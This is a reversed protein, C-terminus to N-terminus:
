GGCIGVIDGCGSITMENLSWTGSNFRLIGLVGSLGFLYILDRRVYYAGLWSVSTGPTVLTNWTPTTAMGNFTQFVGVKGGAVTKDRGVLVVANIDDDAISVARQAATFTVGYKTGSIDPSVDTRTTGVVRILRCQNVLSVLETSGFWVAADPNSVPRVICRANYRDITWGSPAYSSFTAGSDTSRYFASGPPSGTSTHCSTLIVGSGRPDVFVGPAWNPTNNLYNTDYFSTLGTSATWTAGADASYHAQVGGTDYYRMVIVNFPNGRESQLQVQGVNTATYSQASGLTRAGFIDTITRVQSTTAIVGNVSTGALFVFAALTGTLSLTYGTFDPTGGAALRDFNTSIHVKSNTSDFVALTGTNVGLGSGANVGPLVTGPIGLVPFNYPSSTEGVPTDDVAGTAYTAAQFVVKVRGTGGSVDLEASVPMFLFLSLDIGRENTTEDFDLVVYERYFRFLGWYSGPLTVTVRPAHYQKGNADFYVRDEVAGRMPAQEYLHTIGDVILRETVPSSSGSGPSGAWKAFVTQTDATTTGATYGRSHHTEVPRVEDREIELSICDDATLTFTVTVAARDALPTLDLRQQVEMRGTQDAALRAARSDVLEAVQDGPTKKQLYLAPYNADSFGDFVVDFLQPANTYYRLLQVIGRKVTLGEIEDWATPAAVRDMVKSFGPLEFLRALPSLVEFRVPGAGTSDLDTRDRRLYGVCLIHSRGSVKHGFSQLTGNIQERGWLIVPCLDPLSALDANEYVTPSISFGRSPEGSIPAELTIDYPLHDADHVSIPVYSVESKSNTSDTVDHQIVYYGVNARVTPSVDTSSSAPAFAVGSPLTWVHTVSGGSDEDMTYAEAGYLAITAYTQGSDVFGAWAGGSTAVPKVTGNQDSYTEYDPDFTEVAAVLRDTLVFDNYVKLVDGSVVQVHGESFERAPLNTSSITGAFRVSLTGKYAGGATEIVIRMGRRVNSSSGSSTTYAINLASTASPTASVSGVLVPAATDVLASLYVQLQHGDARLAAANAAQSPM